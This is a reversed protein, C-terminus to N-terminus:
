PDNVPRNRYTSPCRGRKLTNCRVQYRATALAMCRTGATYHDTCVLGDSHRHPNVRRRLAAARSELSRLWDMCGAGSPCDGVTPGVCSYLDVRGCAAPF